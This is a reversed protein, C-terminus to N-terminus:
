SILEHSLSGSTAIAALHRRPLLPAAHSPQFIYLQQNPFINLMPVGEPETHRPQDATLLLSSSFEAGHSPQGQLLIPVRHVKQLEHTVVVISWRDDHLIEQKFVRYNVSKTM